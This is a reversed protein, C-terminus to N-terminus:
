AKPRTCCSFTGSARRVELSSRAQRIRRNTSSMRAGPKSALPRARCQCKAAPLSGSEAGFVLALPRAIAWARAPALFAGSRDRTWWTPWPRACPQAASALSLHSSEARYTGVLEVEHNAM